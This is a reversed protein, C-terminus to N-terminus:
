TPMADTTRYSVCISVWNGVVWEIAVPAVLDLYGSTKRISLRAPWHGSPASYVTSTIYDRAPRFGTPVTAVRISSGATTSLVASRKILGELTVLSGQRIVKATAYSGGYDIWNAELTPVATVTPMDLIAPATVVVSKYASGDWYKLRTM